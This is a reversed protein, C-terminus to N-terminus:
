PFIDLFFAFLTFIANNVGGRGLSLTFHFDFSHFIPLHSVRGGERCLTFFRVKKLTNYCMQPSIEVKLPLNLMM